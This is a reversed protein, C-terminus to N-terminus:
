KLPPLPAAIPKGSQAREAQQRQVQQKHAQAAAQKDHQRQQAQAAQQAAERQDSQRQAAMITPAPKAHHPPRHAPDKKNAKTTKAAKASKAANRIEGTPTHNRQREQIAHLRQEARQHREQADLRNQHERLADQAQRAQHRAALLCDEVSFRQYCATEATQLQADIRAQEQQMSHTSATPATTPTQAPSSAHLLALICALLLRGNNQLFPQM